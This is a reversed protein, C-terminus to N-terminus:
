PEFNLSDFGAERKSWGWAMTRGTSRFCCVGTDTPTIFRNHRESVVAKAPEIGGETM